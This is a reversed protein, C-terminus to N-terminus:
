EEIEILEEIDKRITEPKINHKKNYELQIKRRREVESIAGKLSKTMEDAYLIVKGRVNRSARGMTQIFSTESRLFGERDADLIAVLSVEPLDLGERLLNVGVLVNFRGKRFETLIKARELTKTEAHMFQAKIGKSNFFEALEEATRKTLTTVLIREGKKIRKEIEKLLDDIQSIEKKRDYVPKVEIEPDVLFTPRIIQEVIRSSNEKEFKGLTASTFIVKDIRQLFEEFKLPRNDLASPLRWGYEILTEKRRKDAKYMGQLQPITIHSEDIITLFDPKGNKDLPFYSLLTEPPEGPLKGTLHRSYNEIGHCYGLTKIMAIDQKTRRELREAELFKKNKRFFAVREKLEEKIDEIAKNIENTFVLFHRAPFIILQNLEEIKNRKLKDFVEISNIKQNELDIRYIIDQHVPSIEIIDGRVRFKGRKLELNTRYYQIRVLQKILDGRTIPKDKELYIARNFYNSPLGLNYICSVSAVVIVDKRRMLASTAQHRLKEIEENIVAEKSIYTDTSPIYAEPQYYDYYSVFYCVLNEPFFNKYERYLQAALVKNPSIVLVPKNIKSILNAMTFTKGSGTVGLLSIFRDGKYYAQTLEKIAKPQDGSPKFKSILKFNM